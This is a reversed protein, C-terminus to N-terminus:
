LFESINKGLIESPNTINGNLYVEFLLNEKTKSQITSETSTGIKMGRTVTDGINVTSDKIMYYISTLKNSHEITIVTGLIEDTKKDKVIGDMIAVADFTKEGGYIIGTNPMYTNEYYILAKTQNEETDNKDYYSIAISVNEGSYPNIIKLEEKKEENENNSPPEKPEETEGFVSMTFNYDDDQKEKTELLNQSLFTIGFAMLGLVVLYITPLVYSRLKRKKM